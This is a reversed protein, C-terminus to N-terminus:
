TLAFYFRWYADFGSQRQLTHLEAESDELLQDIRETEAASPRRRMSRYRRIGEWKGAVWAWGAGHRLALLGWLAQGALVPWGYRLAWGPPWHRALLFVQNRSIRRVMAPHWAGLTASGAHYAVAEPVYVGDLGQAHCRLGFEVDELYSEFSEELLGVREFLEMRILSATLPPLAIRRTRRWLPSDARGKGARWSCGSRSLLDFTGDVRGSPPDELLLGCAFWAGAAAAAELLRQLWDTKPVVDNNLVAVWPCGVVRLGANVSPAFGRNESLRVVKAGMQEAAAASGDTSAADVVITEEARVSQRQLQELLRLLLDRRNWNPIVVSVPPIM